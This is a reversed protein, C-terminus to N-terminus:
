LQGKTITKGWVRLKTKTGFNTGFILGIELEIKILEFM